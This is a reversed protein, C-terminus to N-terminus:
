LKSLGDSVMLARIDSEIDGMPKMLHIDDYYILAISNRKTWGAGSEYHCIDMVRNGEKQVKKCRILGKKKAYDIVRDFDERDWQGDEGKEDQLRWGM